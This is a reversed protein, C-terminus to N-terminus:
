KGPAVVTLAFEDSRVEVKPVLQFMKVIETNVESSEGGGRGWAGLDDSKASYIFRIRYVGPQRFNEPELQEASFFGHGDTHQYPDFSEGPPVKVFDEAGLGNMNGCRSGSLGVPKGDPGAIEFYCLPFRWRRDSGDLSGVLYIDAGTQNILAIQIKPAEGVQCTPEGKITCGLPGRKSAAKTVPAATAPPAPIPGSAKEECGLILTSVSVTVMWLIRMPLGEPKLATGKIPKHRTYAWM